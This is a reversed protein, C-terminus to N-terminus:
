DTPGGMPGASAPVAATLNRLDRHVAPRGTGTASDAPNRVEVWLSGRVHSLVNALQLSVDPPVEVTIKRYQRAASSSGRRRRGVSAQQQFSRGGVAIVKLNEIIRYAQLPKGGVALMGLINVRDGVNLIEGPTKQPDVSITHTVWRPQIRRSPNDQTPSITYEYLLWQGKRVDRNLTSGIAYDIRDATLCNALGRAFAVNMKVVELDDRTIRDGVRMDTAVRLLEVTEGAQAKRYRSIQVNYLVVVVAALVIAVALLKKNSVGPTPSGEATEEAMKPEESRRRVGASRGGAGAAM